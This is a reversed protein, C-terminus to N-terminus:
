LIAQIQLFRYFRYLKEKLIFIVPELYFGNAKNVLFVFNIEIKIFEM